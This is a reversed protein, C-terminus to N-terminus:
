RGDNILKKTLKEIRETIKASDGGAQYRKVCWGCVDRCNGNKFYVRYKARKPKPHEMSCTPVGGLMDPAPDEFLSLQKERILMTEKQKKNFKDIKENVEQLTLGWKFGTTCLNETQSLIELEQWLEPHKNRFNALASIKANPCFWCGGRTGTEYIPSVLNYKRCLEM